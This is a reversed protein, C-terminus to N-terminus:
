IQQHMSCGEHSKTSGPESDRSAITAMPVNTACRGEPTGFPFCRCHKSHLKVVIMSLFTELTAESVWQCEWCSKQGNSGCDQNSSSYTHAMSSLTIFQFQITQKGESVEKKQSDLVRPDQHLSKASKFRCNGCKVFLSGAPVTPSQRSEVLLPKLKPLYTFWPSCVM